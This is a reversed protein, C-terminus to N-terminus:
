YYRTVDTCWDLTLKSGQGAYLTNYEATLVLEGDVFYSTKNDEETSTLRENLQNDKINFIDKLRILEEYLVSNM